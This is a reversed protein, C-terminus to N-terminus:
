DEGHRGKGRKRHQDSGQQGDENGQDGPPQSSASPTASLPDSVPAEGPPVPGTPATNGSDPRSPSDDGSNLSAGLTAAAAFLLIGAGGLVARSSVGRRERPKSRAGRSGGTRPASPRVSHAARPPPSASGSRGEPLPGALWAAAQEATPRQAPDKALLPMLYDSLAGPIGPRLQDPPVPLADVHQKMVAVTSGGAFPPRGTLLEYLV